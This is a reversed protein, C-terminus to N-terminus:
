GSTRRNRKDAPVLEEDVEVIGVPPCFAPKILIANENPKTQLAVRAAPPPSLDAIQVLRDVDSAPAVVSTIM